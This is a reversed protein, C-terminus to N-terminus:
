ILREVPPPQAINWMELRSGEKEQRSPSYTGYTARRNLVVLLAVSTTVLALLLVVSVLSVSLLMNSILKKSTSDIQCNDGAFSMECLCHYKNILNRCYGGNLCPNSKCEDIEQECRHGTFGPLCDCSLAKETCNGANFCTYNRIEDGCISVPLKPKFRRNDVLYWPIEKIRDRCYPGTYNEACLCAYRDVGHLCTAGHDCLHKECVDVPEECDVGTYGFECACEYTQGHVSCNGHVCPHSACTDANLECLHGTWGEDCSCNFLNWLDLCIAGNLCPNPGCVAVGGCGRHPLSSSTLLFREDQYPPLKVESSRYYPLAIGGVEVTGMCGVLSWIDKSELGGLQIEVEEKLFDLNGGESLSTSADETEEDLVLTWRSVEAWPTVMFLHVKHWEGDSVLRRSILFVASLGLSERVLTQLELFLLGDQLSVTLFEQRSRAHLLVTDRKRTRVTLFISNLNRRIRGNGHYRLLSSNDFFTANAFCEFGQTLTRCETQTPCRSLQCWQVEECRRGATHPLCTCTFDDWVSNCVGGNQCPNRICSDDGTCGVTVNSMNELLYSTSDLRFFQLRKDNIRLDQICGKFHGGFEASAKPEVLGGVYLVDGVQIDIFRVEVSGQMQNAVYLVMRGGDVVVTVLHIEGDNVVRESTLKELNHLLVKIQGEDLWLCLYQSTSNALMLLIGTHYRTRLFFSITIDSGPDDTITFVAYSQSDDKGFRASEYEETCDPGDYPRPCRCVYRQWQNICQGRNQCPRDQCRDRSSCGPTVNVALDSLWAGPVVLHSDVFVDRLCGIFAHETVGDAEMVGGISTTQLSSRLTELGPLTGEVLARRKCDQEQCVGTDLLRLSLLGDGLLAEVSYWEGNTVHAPLVLSQSRQLAGGEVGGAGSAERRLNLRLQGDLLELVLVLGARIRQFLTARPLVTRFSMTINCYAEVAVTPRQPLLYGSQEFSFATSTQCLSGVYGPTCLCSYEHHGDRLFASCFAQNQCEHAHCGLLAETCNQGAHQSCHCVYGGLTNECLGGNECPNPDCADVITECLIGTTGPNCSCIFGANHQPDIHDPLRSQWLLEKCTGRNKCPSSHCERMDVECQRGAFGPLCHCTYNGSHEMCTASNLCPQSTCQPFHTECYQGTFATMSCDCSYGNIGDICRARNICSQSQCEDVDIECRDGQFGPVCTCLFRDVYDHCSGNNLCPQSQCDDIQIECTAGTFGSSCLCTYGNVRDVCPAGNMCPQLVCENVDIQCHEGQFGPVCFCSYGDARSRCIARNRCPNPTCQNTSSVGSRAKLTSRGDIGIVQLYISLASTFLLFGTSRLFEM